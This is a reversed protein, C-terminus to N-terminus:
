WSLWFKLPKRSGICLRFFFRHRKLDKQFIRKRSNYHFQQIRDKRFVTRDGPTDAYFVCPFHRYMQKCCHTQIQIKRIFIINPHLQRTCPCSLTMHLHPSQFLANRCNITHTPIGRMFLIREHNKFSFICIFRHSFCDSKTEDIAAIKSNLCFYICM